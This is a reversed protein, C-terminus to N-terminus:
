ISNVEKYNLNKYYFLILLSQINKKVNFFILTVHMLLYNLQRIIKKGCVM